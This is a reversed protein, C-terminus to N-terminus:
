CDLCSSRWRLSSRRRHCGTCTRRSCEAAVGEDSGIPPIAVERHDLIRLQGLPDSHLKTRLEEVNEVVSGEICRRPHDAAAAEAGTGLGSRQAASGTRHATRRRSFGVAQNRSILRAGLARVHASPARELLQWRQLSRIRVPCPQTDRFHTGPPRQKLGFECFMLM